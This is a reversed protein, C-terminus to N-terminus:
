FGGVSQRILSWRGGNRLSRRGMDGGTVLLLVVTSAGGLKVEEYECVRAPTGARGHAQREKGRLLGWV